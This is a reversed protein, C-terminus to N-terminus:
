SHLYLKNPTTEPKNYKYEPCAAPYLEDEYYGKAM